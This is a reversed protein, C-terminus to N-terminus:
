LTLLARSNEYKGFFIGLFDLVPRRWPLGQDAPRRLVPKHCLIAPNAVPFPHSHTDQADPGAIECVTEAFVNDHGPQLAFRTTACIGRADMM